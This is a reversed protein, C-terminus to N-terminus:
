LIHSQLNVYTVIHSMFLIYFRVILSFVVASTMCFTERLYHSLQIKMHSFTILILSLFLCRNFRLNFCLSSSRSLLFSRPTLSRVAYLATLCITVLPFADITNISFWMKYVTPFQLRRIFKWLALFWAKGKTFQFFLYICIQIQKYIDHVSLHCYTFQYVSIQFCLGSYPM